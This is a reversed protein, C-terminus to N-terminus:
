FKPVLHSFYDKIILNADKPRNNPDIETCKEIMKFMQENNQIIPHDLFPRFETTKAYAIQALNHKFESYPIESTLVYYALLGFSYIDCREDYVVTTDIFLEPAAWRVTGIGTLSMDSTDPSHSVILGCSMTKKIGETSKNYLQKSVGFDCIKIEGHKNVLINSPKFDRHLIKQPTRSSLYNMGILISLLIREKEQYNLENETVYKELDGNEMYEFLMYVCEKHKGAGLFQCIKPHICKSLIDLERDVLHKNDETVRIKKVCVLHYKRWYAKYLEVSDHICILDTLEVDDKVNIYLEDDINTLM